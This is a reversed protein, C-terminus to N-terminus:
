VKFSNAKKKQKVLDILEILKEYEKKAKSARKLGLFARAKLAKDSIM